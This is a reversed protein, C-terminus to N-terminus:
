QTWRDEKAGAALLDPIEQTAYWALECADVDDLCRAADAATPDLLARAIVPEAAPDDVHVAAVRNWRIPGGVHVAARGAAVDPTVATDAEVDAVVVVRRRPAQADVALLRLSARAAEIMAAYELEELDGSRYWERLAPTVAAGPGQPVHGAALWAALAPLTAPLYVRM